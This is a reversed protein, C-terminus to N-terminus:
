VCAQGGVWGWVCLLARVSVHLGGHRCVLREEGVHHGQQKPVPLREPHPLLGLARAPRRQLGGLVHLGWFVREM